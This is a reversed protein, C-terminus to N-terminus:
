GATFSQDAGHSTGGDSTAVLRFHSTRGAQLGSVQASVNFASTGAGGNQSPTRSGYGTSTGYDFSGPAPRGTRNVSGALTAASCSIGGAAGTVADPAPAGSTTLVADAGQTTGTANTAAIRYHYTTGPTLGNLTTSVNTSTTGAGANFTGTQSGYGT